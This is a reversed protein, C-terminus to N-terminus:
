QRQRRRQLRRCRRRDVRDGGAPMPIDYAVSAAVVVNTLCMYVFCSTLVLRYTRISIESATPLHTAARSLESEDDLACILHKM